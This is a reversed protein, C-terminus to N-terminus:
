SEKEVNPAGSIFIARLLFIRTCAQQELRRAVGRPPKAIDVQPAGLESPQGALVYCVCAGFRVKWVLSKSTLRQANLPISFNEQATV